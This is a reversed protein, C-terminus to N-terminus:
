LGPSAKISVINKRELLDCKDQNGSIGDKIMDERLKGLAPMLPVTNSIKM